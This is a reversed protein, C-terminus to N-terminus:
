VMPFKGLNDELNDRWTMNWEEDSVDLDFGLALIVASCHKCDHRKTRADICNCKRPFNTYEGTRYGDRIIIEYGRGTSGAVVFMVEDDTKKKIGSIKVKRLRAMLKKTQADMTKSTRVDEPLSEMVERENNRRITDETPGMCNLLHREHARQLKSQCKPCVGSAKFAEVALVFEPDEADPPVHSETVRTHEKTVPDVRVIEKEGPGPPKKKERKKAPARKKKKPAADFDEDEDDGEDDDYEPELKVDEADDVEEEKPVYDDADDAQAKRKKSAPVKKAAAKKAPAKRKPPARKKAPVKDPIEDDVAEPPPGKSAGSHQELFRTRSALSHCSRADRYWSPGDRCVACGYARECAALVSSVPM